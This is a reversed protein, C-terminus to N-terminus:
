NEGYIEKIVTYQIPYSVILRDTEGYVRTWFCYCNERIELKGCEIVKEEYAGPMYMQVKFKTM